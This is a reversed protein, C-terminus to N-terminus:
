ITGNDVHLVQGTISSSKESILFRVTEGVSKPDTALKLSTRRYIRDKQERSLTTSMNTEMFGPAVCNSRIGIEGWERATTKSFAELAGKTAAYMSLGKYGTHACVSTIHVISGKTQYLLMDRIACKTLMIPSYVNIKFMTELADIKANTIIDDYAYASNNVLGYIKGVKKIKELYLKKIENPNELDFNIHIYREAYVKKLAKTVENEKRSIGIIGYEKDELITQAIESGLGGTDGTVIIWKM